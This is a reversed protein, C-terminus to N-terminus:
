TLHQGLFEVQTEEAENKMFRIVHDSNEEFTDDHSIIFIQKFGKIREICHALNNRKEKDLNTTPEDFFAFDIKTLVKLIALRISLAVAMQEGGSLQEFERAPFSASIVRVSYDKQWELLVSEEDKIRRYIDSATENIELMLAATIKPEAEKFWTRITQSFSDIIELKELEKIRINLDKEVQQLNKLKLELNELYDTKQRIEEELQIKKKNLSDRKQEIEDFNTVEFQKRLKIELNKEKKLKEKLKELLKREKQIKKKFEEM